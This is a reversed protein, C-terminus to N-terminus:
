FPPPPVPQAAGKESTQYAFLTLRFISERKLRQSM